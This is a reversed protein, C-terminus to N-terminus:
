RWLRAAARLSALHIAVTDDVRRAYGGALVVLIPAGHRRCLDVVREDRAALGGMSLALAGLQDDRYPDAGAVYVVLEPRSRDFLGPLHRDMEALYREDGAGPPLGVDVSSPPKVSPYIDQEHISFTAVDPDGAFIAATGNGQHLDCDVVLARLIAGEAQLTRIAVAHDNFVCFGEGHDPFAHHFGGGVHLGAGHEIALRGALISGQVCRMSADYLEDSWPLELQLVEYLSLRGDRCREWYDRTHVRVVDDGSAPEPAVFDEPRAGDEYVLRRAIMAYKRTPFVHAGIDVDYHPSTVYRPMPRDYGRTPAGM